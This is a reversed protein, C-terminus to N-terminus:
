RRARLDRVKTQLEKFYESDTIERVSHERQSQDIQIKLEEVERQAQQLDDRVRTFLKANTIAIAAQNGFATLVPLIDSSFNGQGIRNDVYLVGIAKERSLLPVVIISRLDNAFVSKMSQFRADNQANTTLIPQREEIAMHVMGSSFVSEDESVTEGEWNRRTYLRLDGDLDLILYGREAGTLHIVTDMVEELVQDLDLSSNILATLRVMEQLQALVAVNHSAVQHAHALAQRLERMQGLLDSAPQLGRKKLSNITRELNGELEASIGSLQGFVAQVDTHTGGVGSASITTSAPKAAPKAAPSVTPNTTLPEGSM